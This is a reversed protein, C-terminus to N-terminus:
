WEHELVGYLNVDEFEGERFNQDRLVGEKNYGLRKWIKNSGENGRYARAIIKHYNLENFGYSTMLESAETGYGNGHHKPHIWLGIQAVRLDPQDKLSVIGVIEHEHTIALHVGEESSIVEEFFEEQQSLNQPKDVKLFKRVDPHNVGDRLFEADEKEVTRLNVKEGELFVAGPM